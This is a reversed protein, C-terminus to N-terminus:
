LSRCGPLSSPMLANQYCISCKDLKLCGPSDGCFSCAPMALAATSTPAACTSGSRLQSGQTDAWDRGQRVMGVSKAAAQKRGSEAAGPFGCLAVGVIHAVHDGSHAAAAGALLDDAVECLPHHAVAGKAHHELRFAYLRALRHASTTAPSRVLPWPPIHMHALPPVLVALLM